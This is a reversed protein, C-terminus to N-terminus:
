KDSFFKKINEAATKNVGKVASLEEASAAKVASVTKFHRMLAAATKDGVGPIETLTSGLM